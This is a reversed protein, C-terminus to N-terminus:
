VKALFVIDLSNSINEFHIKYSLVIHDQAQRHGGDALHCGKTGKTIMPGNKINSSTNEYKRRNRMHKIRNGLALGKIGWQGATWYFLEQRKWAEDIRSM